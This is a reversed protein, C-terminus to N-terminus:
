SLGDPLFYKILRWNNLLTKIDEFNFRNDQNLDLPLMRKFILKNEGKHFFVFKQRPLYYPRLIVVRYREGLVINQIDKVEAKGKIVEIGNKKFVLKERQDFIQIEFDKGKAEKFTPWLSIQFSIKPLPEIIFDWIKSEIIKKGNKLLFIKVQNKGSEQNTRIFFSAQKEEFPKINKLDSFLYEFPKQKEPYSVVSLLYGDDKDWIAQGQNKIELSFQYDSYALIEKPLNFVIEGKEVKEPEAKIKTMSQITYYQPYFSGDSRKWSFGLFPDSQYDFVFPTVAMIREDPLWVNEFAIKFYNAVKNEDLYRIDFTSYRTKREWGTETIFVPLDKRVGLSKLLELEWQYTRVTGRGFDWPSGAFGPNPYSHSAWGDILFEFCSIRFEFCNKFDSNKLNLVNQTNPNQNNYNTESKIIKRLFIEEDEFNPPSSPASADLGALMVFFDSNKEKLAKAFAFAVQAYNEPDVTGEWESGHNPENFLIVYRNKIVWNLSDLFNAWSQGEDINPRRWNEEQPSTALRIIPILHLERLRDFIVQWKDKNRDNEQIVLTVYGWDGGSGNVMVAAKPLDELHPQALHIGFKNNSLAAIVVEFRIIFLSYIIIVILLGLFNKLQSKILKKITM